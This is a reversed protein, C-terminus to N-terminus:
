DVKKNLYNFIISKIEQAKEHNLSVHIGYGTPKRFLLNEKILEESVKKVLYHYKPSIGRKLKDIATHSNGWKRHRSLNFLIKARIIKIDM